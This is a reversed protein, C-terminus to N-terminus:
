EREERERERQMLEQTVKLGAKGCNIRWRRINLKLESDGRRKCIRQCVCVLRSERRIGKM